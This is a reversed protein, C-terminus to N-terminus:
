PKMPFAITYLFEDFTSVVHDAKHIVAERSINETFAFFKSALGAEKMEYDTNGDGIVFVEGDLKLRKLQLVKGRAKSLLNKKEFGTINGAKYFTFSNAFVNREPIGYQKVVPWIYDKFGGSFIFINNAYDKLFTKNRVFSPTVNKKLLKVLIEIHKKNARLLPVRKGLSEGFDIKGEMGAKTIEKIKEIVGKSHGHATDICVEDKKPNGKLAIEFLEDLTELRSFTSDFDIVFFRKQKATKDM